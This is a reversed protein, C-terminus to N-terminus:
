GFLDDSETDTTAFPNAIESENNSLFSFPNKTPEEDFPLDKEKPKEETFEQFLATDGYYSKFGGTASSANQMLSLFTKASAKAFAGTFVDQYKGDKVGLLVNIENMQRDTKFFQILENIEVPNGKVLEGWKALELNTTPDGVAINFLTCLFDFLQVEGEKAVRATSTDFWQMRSNNKIDDLSMAWASQGRTNIFQRKGSQAIRENNSVFISMKTIISPEEKKLYFDLRTSKDGVYVVDKIESEEKGYMKALAKKSPNCGLVSMLTVGTYLQKSESATSQKANKWNTSMIHNYYQETIQLQYIIQQEIELDTLNDM